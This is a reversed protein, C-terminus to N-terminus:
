SIPSVLITYDIQDSTNGIAVLRMNGGSVDVDFSAVSINNYITGYETHYATSGDHLANIKTRLYNNGEVAQVDYEVSRSSSTSISYISTPSVTTLSTTFGIPTVQTASVIGSASISNAVISGSNYLRIATGVGLGVGNELSTSGISIAYNSIWADTNLDTFSGEQHWSFQKYKDYTSLGVILPNGETSAISIGGGNATTDNPTITTTFGLIINKDEVLVEQVNVTVFDGQVIFDGKIELDNNFTTTETSITGSLIGGTYFYLTDEDSGAQTETLIYTDGDVDKVEGLSGWSGGPGYGEFSSNTTNYRIQGTVAVGVLDREATTGVPIQISNTSDFIVKDNFIAEGRVDLLKTPEFITTGIGARGVVELVKIDETNQIIGIQQQLTRRSLYRVPAVM